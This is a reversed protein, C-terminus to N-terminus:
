VFKIVLRKGLSEAIKKLLTITPIPNMGELDAISQKEKGIKKDLEKQSLKKKIRAELIAEAIQYEPELDDYAKKFGPDKMSKKFLEDGSILKLKKM